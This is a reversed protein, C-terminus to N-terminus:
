SGLRGRLQRVGRREGPDPEASLLAHFLNLLVDDFLEPDPYWWWGGPPFRSEREIRRVLPKLEQPSGLSSLCGILEDMLQVALARRQRMEAAHKGALAFVVSFLALALALLASDSIELELKLIVIRLTAIFGLLVTCSVMLYTSAVGTKRPAVRWRALSVIPLTSFM